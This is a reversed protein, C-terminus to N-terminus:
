GGCLKLLLGRKSPPVGAPGPPCDAHLAAAPEMPQAGVWPWEPAAPIVWCALRTLGEACM